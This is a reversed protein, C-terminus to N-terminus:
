FADAFHELRNEQTYYEIVDFRINKYNIKNNALFDRTASRIHNQKKSTVSERATVFSANKRTKVEVIVLIDRQMAIIDIEGTKARYNNKLIQYGKSKLYNTAVGEGYDGIIKTTEKLDVRVKYYEFFQVIKLIVTLEFLILM